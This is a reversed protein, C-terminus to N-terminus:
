GGQGGMALANAGGRAEVLQRLGVGSNRCINGRGLVGGGVRAPRTRFFVLINM